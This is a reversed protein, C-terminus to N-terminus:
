VDKSGAMTMSEGYLSVLGRRFSFVNAPETRRDRSAVVKVEQDRAGLEEISSESFGSKLSLAM